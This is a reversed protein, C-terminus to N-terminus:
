PFVEIGEYKEGSGLAKPVKLVGTPSDLLINGEDDFITLYTEITNEPASMEIVRTGIYHHKDGLKTLRAVDTFGFKRDLFHDYFEQTGNKKGIYGVKVVKQLGVDMKIMLNTGLYEDAKEEYLIGVSHRRPLFMWENLHKDFLVAEHILYGPPTANVAKRVKYFVEGWDVSMSRFYRRDIVKVWECHRNLVEGNSVWEKGISGIYLRDDPGVTSWEAKLPIKTKGDGSYLVQIPFARKDEMDIDYVIGTYDCTSYFKGRWLSLTSLEMSRNKRALLTQVEFKADEAFDLERSFIISYLGNINRQITGKIIFSRWKFEKPDRSAKDLDSVMAFKYENPETEYQIPKYDDRFYASEYSSYGDAYGFERNNLKHYYIAALVIGLTMLFYSISSTSFLSSM